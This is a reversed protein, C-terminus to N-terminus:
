WECYATLVLALMACVWPEHAMTLIANQLAWKTTSQITIFKNYFYVLIQHYVKGM